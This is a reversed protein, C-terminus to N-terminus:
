DGQGAQQLGADGEHHHQAHQDEHVLEAVVERRAPAAHM